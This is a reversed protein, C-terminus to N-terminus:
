EALEDIVGTPRALHAFTQFHVHVPPRGLPFEVCQLFAKIFPNVGVLFPPEIWSRTDAERFDFKLTSKVQRDTDPVVARPLVPTQAQGPLSHGAVRVWIMTYSIEGKEPRREMRCNLEETALEFNCTTLRGLRDDDCVM